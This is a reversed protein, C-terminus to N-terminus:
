KLTHRGVNYKTTAKLELLVNSAKKYRAMM